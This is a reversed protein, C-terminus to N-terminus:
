GKGLEVMVTRARDRQWPISVELLLQAATWRYAVPRHDLTVAAPKGALNHLALTVMGKGKFRDAQYHKGREATLAITLAHADHSASFHMLEFQGKEYADPTKGDDDYLKGSSSTVADDLYYHLTFDRTSYHTTNAIPAIMPVFAGGKVYM